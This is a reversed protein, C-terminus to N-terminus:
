GGGFLGSLWAVVGGLGGPVQAGLLALIPVAGYLLMRAVITSDWNFRGPQTGSLMSVVRDRNISVFVTFTLTIASLTGGLEAVAPQQSETISLYEGHADDRAIGRYCLWCPQPAPHLCPAPLRGRPQRHITRGVRAPRYRRCRACTGDPREWAALGARSDRGRASVAEIAQQARIRKGLVQRWGQRNQADLVENLCKEAFHIAAEFADRNALLFGGATLRRTEEVSLGNSMRLMARARDLCFEIATLSPAPEVVRIRQDEPREPLSKVRLTEYCSRTPHWYLRCLLKHLAGWVLLFRLLLISFYTYIYISSLAFLV